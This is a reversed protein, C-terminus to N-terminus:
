RGAAESMRISRIKLETFDKRIGWHRRYDKRRKYKLANIKPGRGHRVVEALVTAGDVLPTGVTVSDDSGVLMVEDIPVEEGVSAALKPVQVVADPEVRLQVGRVKVVAFM